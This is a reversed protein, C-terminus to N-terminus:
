SLTEKLATELEAHQWEFGLDILSKPLVGLNSLVTEKGMEGFIMKVLSAPLPFVTPRQSSVLLRVVHTPRPPSVRLAAGFHAGFIRESLLKPFSPRKEVRFTKTTDFIISSQQFLTNGLFTFSSLRM